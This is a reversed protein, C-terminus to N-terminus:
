TSLSSVFRHSGESVESDDADLEKGGSEGIRVEGSCSVILVSLSSEGDVELKEVCLSGFDDFGSVLRELM